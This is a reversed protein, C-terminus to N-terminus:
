LLKKSKRLLNLITEQYSHTASVQYSGRTEHRYPSFEYVMHSTCCLLLFNNRKRFEDQSKDFNNNHSDKLLFQFIPPKASRDFAGSKFDSTGALTGPTRIGSGGGCFDRTVDPNKKVGVKKHGINERMSNSISNQFL